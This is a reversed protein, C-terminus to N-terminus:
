SDSGGVFCNGGQKAGGECYNAAANGINCSSYNGWGTTCSLDHVGGGDECINASTPTSGNACRFDADIISIFYLEPKRYKIMHMGTLESIKFFENFEYM